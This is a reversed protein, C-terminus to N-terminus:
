SPQIVTILRQKKLECIINETVESRFLDEYALDNIAAYLTLCIVSRGSQLENTITVDLAQDLNVYRSIKAAAQAIERAKVLDIEVPLYIRVPVQVHQNGNSHFPIDLSDLSRFTDHIKPPKPVSYSLRSRRGYM